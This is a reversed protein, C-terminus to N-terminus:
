EIQKKSSVWEDGGSSYKLYCWVVMSISCHHYVHLFSLQRAKKRLIMIFTDNFEWFKSLYFVYAAMRIEPILPPPNAIQFSNNCVFTFSNKWAAYLFLLSTYLSLLVCSFNYFLRFRHLDFANKKEAMILSLFIVVLLYFANILFM